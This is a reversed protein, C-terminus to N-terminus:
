LMEEETKNRIKSIASTGCHEAPKHVASLTECCRYECCAVYEEQDSGASAAAPDVGHCNQAQAAHHSLLGAILVACALVRNAPRM